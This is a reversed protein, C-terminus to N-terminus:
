EYSIVIKRIDGKKLKLTFTKDDEDISYSPVSFDPITLALNPCIKLLKECDNSKVASLIMKDISLIGLEYLQKEYENDIDYRFYDIFYEIYANKIHPLKGKIFDIACKDNNNKIFPNAGAQLLFPTSKRYQKMTSILLPTDGNNNKINLDIGYKILKKTLSCHCRDGYGLLHAHLLTNGDDDQFNIDFADIKILDDIIGITGNSNIKRFLSNIIKNSM